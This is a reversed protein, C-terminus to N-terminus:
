SLTRAARSSRAAPDSDGSTTLMKPIGLTKATGALGLVANKFDAPSQDRIWNALGVRHDILLVVCNEPTPM